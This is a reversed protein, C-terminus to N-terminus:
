PLPFIGIANHVRGTSRVPRDLIQGGLYLATSSGGDLNLANVTGLQQMMRSLEELTPGVGNIRDHVTVILIRGDTTQGIASRAAKEEIFANSFGESKANLVIQGNQILLPGAGLIQSYNAFEPPNTSTTIQIASGVAFAPAASAQSRLVLLFGDAPIPAPTTAKPVVQQNTVQNNQVTVLIENDAITTYTSGWAPTYRAIGAQVFGSNLTTLPFRQGSATTVTEQLILRGVVLNQDANWAAVGRNLIPGSLWQNNLRVAGLPLQNNRNFFGGNIAAIANSRQATQILQATGPAFDPNPVIPRIELKSQRPNLDLWVVPFQDNGLTIYRQRWFLGQAWQIDKDVLYNTGIDITIRNDSTTIQPRVRWPVGLKLFTSTANSEIKLSRLKTAASPQFSQVSEFPADISLNLDDGSPDVQFSIPRDVTISIRDGWPQQEQQISLVKTPQTTIQLRTGDVQLQWGNRQALDTIDLYRDPSVFRVPLSFNSFWQIPQQALDPNSLLEAGFFRALVADSLGIRTSNGVQWQTWAGYFTQGNIIVQNPALTTLPRAPVRTPRTTQAQLPAAILFLLALVTSTQLFRSIAAPKIV